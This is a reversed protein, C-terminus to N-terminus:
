REAAGSLPRPFLGGQTDFEDKDMLERILRVILTSKKHGKAQCYADFRAFENPSLLVSVRTCSSEYSAPRM